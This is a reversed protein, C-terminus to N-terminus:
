CGAGVTGYAGGTAWAAPAVEYPRESIGAGWGCAAQASAGHPVPRTREEDGMDRIGWYRYLEVM